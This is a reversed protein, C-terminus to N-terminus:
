VFVSVGGTAGTGSRDSAGPLLSNTSNPAAAEEQREEDESAAQASDTQGTGTQAPGTDQEQTAQILASLSESALSTSPVSSGQGPLPSAADGFREERAEVQSTDSTGFRADQSEQARNEEARSPQQTNRLASLQSSGQTDVGAIAM